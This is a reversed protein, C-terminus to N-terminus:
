KQYKWCKRGNKNEVKVNEVNISEATKNKLNFNEANISWVKKNEVPINEGM